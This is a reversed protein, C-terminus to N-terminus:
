PTEAAGASNSPPAPASPPVQSSPQLDVNEKPSSSPPASGAANENESGAFQAVRAQARASYSSTSPIRRYLHVAGARDGMAWKSDASGMLAPAYNGNLRLAADYHSSAVAYKGQAKAVDGLGTMAEVNSPTASLVQTYLRAARSWDGAQKAEHAARLADQPKSPVSEAAMRASRPGSATPREAPLPEEGVSSAVSPQQETRDLFDALLELLPHQADLQRLVDLQTRAGDIDGSRALAYVLAAQARGQGREAAVASRLRSLVTSWEPGQEAVDLMALVYAAEPERVLDSARELVERAAAVEGRLRLGDVVEVSADQPPALERLSQLSEGISERRELLIRQAQAHRPHQEELLRLALWHRDARLNQVRLLRQLVRPDAELLASAKDFRAKAAELKGQRLLEDGEELLSEARTDRTASGAVQSPVFQELYNRGVTGALLALGGLLVFGFIWRLGGGSPPSSVRLNLHSSSPEDSNAAHSVAAPEVPNPAAAFYVRERRRRALGMPSQQLVAAADEAQTEPTKFEAAEAAQVEGARAPRESNADADNTAQPRLVGNERSSPRLSQKYAQTIEEEDDFRLASELPNAFSEYSRQEGRSHFSGAVAPKAAAPPAVAGYLGDFEQMARPPPPATPSDGDVKGVGLLTPDRGVPRKQSPEFFAELEAVARLPRYHTGDRSMEDDIDVQRQHIARQLESLSYFARTAGSRRRIIWRERGPAESVGPPRVRFQYGCQTCRVTTGRASVLADDFEYETGCRGCVVNM